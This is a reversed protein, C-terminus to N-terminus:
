SSWRPPKWTSRTPTRPAALERRDLHRHPGADRGVGQRATRERAPRHDAGRQLGEGRVEGGLLRHAAPRPRHEGLLRQRELHQRHPGRRLRDAAHVCARRQLRRGLVRQVHPGVDARDDTIMSGGGGIGANNFLLNVHDTSHQSWRTASRWCRSRTPCTACTPPSSRAPPHWPSRWGGARRWRRSRCTACRSTAGRPRWSSRRTRTGDRESRRHRRRDKGTSVRCRRM